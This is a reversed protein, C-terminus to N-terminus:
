KLKVFKYVFYSNTAFTLVMLVFPERIALMVGILYGIVTLIPTLLLGIWSTYYRKSDWHFWEYMVKAYFISDLMQACRLYLYGFTPYAVVLAIWVPSLLKLATMEYLIYTLFLRFLYTWRYDRLGCVEM